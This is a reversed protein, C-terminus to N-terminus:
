AAKKAAPTNYILYGHEFIRKKIDQFTSRGVGLREAEKQPIGLIKRKIEEVDIFEQVKKVDLEQEDINNAEKGIYVVGDAHVHKRELVGIEGDFKHELHEVYQMITRSLPKFYHSGEKIEGTAYDIFPDYVTSQPNNSFPYLSSQRAMM